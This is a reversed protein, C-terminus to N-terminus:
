RIYISSKSRRKKGFEIGSVDPAVNSSWQLAFYMMLALICTVLGVVLFYIPGAKVFLQFFLIAPM